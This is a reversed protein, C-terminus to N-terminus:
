RRRTEKFNEYEEWTPFFNEWVWSSTKTVDVEGHIRCTGMVRVIEDLGNVIAYVNGVFRGCIPCKSHNM